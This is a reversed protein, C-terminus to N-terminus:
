AQLRRQLVDGMDKADLPHERTVSRAKSRIAQFLREAAKEGAEDNDLSLVVDRGVALDGIASELLTSASPIGVVTARQGSMRVLRRRALADLAGESVILEGTEDPQLLDVGFPSRMQRGRPFVYKQEAGADARRRQLTEIRGSRDRWPILLRNDSYSFQGRRSLGAVELAEGFSARLEEYVARQQGAPPLAGLGAMEAEAELGRSDLYRAVDPASRLPCLDLLASAIEHFLADPVSPEPPAPRPVPAPRPRLPPRPQSADVIDWRGALRALEFLAEKFDLGHVQAVLGIADASWDCSFCKASVTGDNAVRVSCSPDKEQHAPCCIIVGRPQRKM